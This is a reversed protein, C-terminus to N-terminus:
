WHEYFHNKEEEWEREKAAKVRINYLKKSEDISFLFLNM